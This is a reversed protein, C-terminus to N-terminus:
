EDYHKVQKLDKYFNDVEINEKMEKYSDETRVQPVDESEKIYDDYDFSPSSFIISPTLRSM